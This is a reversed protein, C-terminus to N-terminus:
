VHKRMRDSIARIHAPGTRCCGGILAAGLKRWERASTGFGEADTQGLWVKAVPDYAEGSNPYIIIPKTTATQAATILGPVHRPATCNIGVAAIQAVGDLEAACDALPTGDSIEAASRCSFAMWAPLTPTEALLRVLARSEAASPITECALLDAGSTALIHWRPRHFAVLGAEDLDYDGTYEAGNALYAGYPGVSAAVLPRLRGSAAGGVQAWFDDRARCALEVALRLIQEAEAADLGRAMLGALTAQYTATIIVDAGAWLYDLHVQYIAQPDEMLIKASWLSDHLNHGRAELETALGGDVIIASQHALFPAFLATNCSM